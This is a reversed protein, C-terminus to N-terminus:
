RRRLHLEMQWEQLKETFNRIFHQRVSNTINRRRETESILMAYARAMANAESKHLQNMMMLNAKRQHPSQTHQLTGNMFSRYNKHNRIQPPGVTKNKHFIQIYYFIERGPVGDERTLHIAYVHLNKNLLEKMLRDTMASVSLTNKMKILDQNTAFHRLIIYGNELVIHLRSPDIHVMYIQPM